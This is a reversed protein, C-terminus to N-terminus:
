HFPAVYYMSAQHNNLHQQDLLFYFVSPLHLRVSPQFRQAAATNHAGETRFYDCKQSEIKKELYVTVDVGQSSEMWLSIHVESRM